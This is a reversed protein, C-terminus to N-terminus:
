RQAEQMVQTDDFMGGINKMRLKKDRRKVTVQKKQWLQQSVM